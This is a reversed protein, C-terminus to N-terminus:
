RSMTSGEPTWSCVILLTSHTSFPNSRGSVTATFEFKAKINVAIKEAVLGTKPILNLTCEVVSDKQTAPSQVVGEGEYISELIELEEAIKDVM